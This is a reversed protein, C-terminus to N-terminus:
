FNLSFCNMFIFLKMASTRFTLLISFSIARLLEIFVITKAFFYSLFCCLKILTFLKHKVSKQCQFLYIVHSLDNPFLPLAPHTNKEKKKM